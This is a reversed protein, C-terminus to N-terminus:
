IGMDCDCQISLLNSVTNGIIAQYQAHQLSPEPIECPKDVHEGEVAPVKPM